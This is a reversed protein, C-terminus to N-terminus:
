RNTTKTQEKNQRTLFEDLGEMALTYGEKFVRPPVCTGVSIPTGGLIEPASQAVDTVSPM